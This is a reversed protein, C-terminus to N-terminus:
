QPSQRFDLKLLENVRKELEDLEIPKTWYEMVGYQQAKSRTEVSPYGTIIVVKTEPLHEHLHQLVSMGSGGRIKIDLLVLDPTRSRLWALAQDRDALAVVRHGSAALVRELLRGADLEDDVVLILAMM